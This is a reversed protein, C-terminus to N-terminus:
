ATEPEREPRSGFRRSPARLAGTKARRLPLVTTSAGALRCISSSARPSAPADVRSRSAIPDRGNWLGPAPQVPHGRQQHLLLVPILEDHGISCVGVDPHMHLEVGVVSACVIGAARGEGALATTSARTFAASDSSTREALSRRSQDGVQEALALRNDREGM